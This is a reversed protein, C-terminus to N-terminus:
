IGMLKYLLDVNLFLFVGSLSVFPLLFPHPETHVKSQQKAVSNRVGARGSGLALEPFSACSLIMPM